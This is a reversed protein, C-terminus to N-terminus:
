PRIVKECIVGVGGREVWDAEGAVTGEILKCGREEWKARDQETAVLSVRWVGDFRRVLRSDACTRYEGHDCSWCRFTVNVCWVEDAGMDLDEHLPKANKASNIRAKDELDFGSLVTEKVDPPLSDGCGALLTALLIFVLIMRGCITVKNRMEVMRGAVNYNLPLARVFSLATERGQM